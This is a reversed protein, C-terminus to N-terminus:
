STLPIRSPHPPHKVPGPKSKSSGYFVTEKMWAMAIIVRTLPCCQCSEYQPHTGLLYAERVLDYAWGQMNSRPINIRLLSHM